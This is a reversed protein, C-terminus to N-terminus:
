MRVLNGINSFASNQIKLFGANLYHLVVHLISQKKQTESVVCSKVDELKM